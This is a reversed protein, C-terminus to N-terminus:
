SAVAAIDPGHETAETGFEGAQYARNFSEVVRDDFAAVKIDNIRAVAQQFSLSRQYPRNTTMADFTDAVAIIRGMLPIDEGKLGDPYGSGNWREHHSRLGDIIYKLKRIPAMIEAGRTTHTKM